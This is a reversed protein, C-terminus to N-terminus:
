KFQEFILLHLGFVLRYILPFLFIGLLAMLIRTIELTIIGGLLGNPISFTYLVAAFKAIFLFFKNKNEFRDVWFIRYLFQKTKIFRSHKFILLTFIISGGFVIIDPNM